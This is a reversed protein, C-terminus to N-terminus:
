TRVNIRVYTSRVYTTRVYTFVETRLNKSGNIKQVLNKHVHRIQYGNGSWMRKHKLNLICVVKCVCTLNGDWPCLFKTCTHYSHDKPTCIQIRIKKFISYVYSKVYANGIKIGRGCYANLTVYSHITCVYAFICWVKSQLTAHM